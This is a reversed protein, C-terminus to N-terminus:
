CLVPRLISAPGPASSWFPRITIATVILEKVRTKIRELVPRELLMTEKSQDLFPSFLAELLYGCYETFVQDKWNEKEFLHDRTTLIRKFTV